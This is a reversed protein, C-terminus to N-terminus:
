TAQGDAADKRSNREELHLYQIILEQAYYRGFRRMRWLALLFLPLGIIPPLYWSPTVNGSLVAISVLLSAAVGRHLSHAARFEHLKAPKGEQEVTVIVHRIATRIRPDPTYRLRMKLWSTGGAGGDRGPRDEALWARQRIAQQAKQRTALDAIKDAEASLGDGLAIDTPRGLYLRDHLAEIGNGVGQLLHGAVYSLIVFLGLGGFSVDKLSLLQKVGTTVTVATGLVLVGPIVIGLIEYRSLQKM